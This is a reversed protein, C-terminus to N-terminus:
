ISQLYSSVVLSVSTLHCLTLTINENIENYNCSTINSELWEGGNTYDGGCNRSATGNIYVSSTLAGCPCPRIVEDTIESEPWLISLRYESHFEETTKRCGDIIPHGGTNFSLVTYYCLIIRGFRWVDTVDVNVDCEENVDELRSHIADRIGIPSYPM